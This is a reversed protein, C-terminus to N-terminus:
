RFFLIYVLLLISLSGVGLAIKENRKEESARTLSDGASSVEVQGYTMDRPLIRQDSIEQVDHKLTVIADEALPADGYNGYSIDRPLLQRDTMEVVPSKLKVIADAPLEGSQTRQKGTVSSVMGPPLFKIANQADAGQDSLQEYSM